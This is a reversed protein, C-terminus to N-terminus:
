ILSSEGALVIRVALSGLVGPSQTLMVVCMCILTVEHAFVVRAALSEMITSFQNLVVACMLLARQGALIIRAASFESSLFSQLSVHVHMCFLSRKSTGVCTTVLAKTVEPGQLVMLITMDISIYEYAAVLRAVVGEVIRKLELAM